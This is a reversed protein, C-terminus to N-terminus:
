ALAIELVVGIEAVDVSIRISTRLEGLRIHMEAVQDVELVIAADHARTAGANAIFHDADRRDFCGMPADFGRNRRGKALCECIREARVAAHADSHARDASQGVPM